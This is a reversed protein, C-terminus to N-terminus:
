SYIISGNMMLIMMAGQVLPGQVELNTQESTYVTQVADHYQQEDLSVHLTNKFTYADSFLPSCRQSNAGLKLYRSDYDVSCQLM